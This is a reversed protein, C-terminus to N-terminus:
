ERGHIFSRWNRTGSRILSSGGPGCHAILDLISVYPTFTGHFQPYSTCRYDMYEVSIGAAEFAEHQLYHRGGHGTIYSTGGLAKVIALVRDSGKGPIGLKSIEIFRVKQDLGFYRCVSLLSSRSVGAVTKETEAIEELMRVADMLWPARNLSNRLLALHAGKWQSVPKISVEEINQGFRYNHLPVTMWSIGSSTKMQVRNVFGGKSYQVDTYFVFVDALAIQEFLGVWPFYM